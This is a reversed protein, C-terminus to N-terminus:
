RQFEINYKATEHEILDVEKKTLSQTYEKPEKKGIPRNLNQHNVNKELGLMEADRNANVITQADGPLELFEFVREITDEPNSILSEYRVLISNTKQNKSLNFYEFTLNWQKLTKKLEFNNTTELRKFSAAVEFPNRVLFIFKALPFCKSLFPFYQLNHPTKDGLITPQKNNLRAEQRYLSLVFDQVTKCNSFDLEGKHAKLKWHYSNSLFENALSISNKNLGFRKKIITKSLSYQEPSIFVKPHNNLIASLLSSGNRGTGLVFLM